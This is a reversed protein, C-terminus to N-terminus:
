KEEKATTRLQMLSARTQSFHCQFGRAFSIIHISKLGQIYTDCNLDVSQSWLCNTCICSDSPPQPKSNCFQARCCDCRAGHSSFLLVVMAEVQKRCAQPSYYVKRPTNDISYVTSVNRVSAPAGRRSWGTGPYGSQSWHRRLEEVPQLLVKSPLKNRHPLQGCKDNGTVNYQPQPHPVEPHAIHSKIYKKSSHRPQSYSVSLVYGNALWLIKVFQHECM